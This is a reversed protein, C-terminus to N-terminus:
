VWSFSCNEISIRNQCPTTYARLQALIPKAKQHRKRSTVFLQIVEDCSVAIVTTNTTPVQESIRNIFLLGNLSNSFASSSCAALTPTWVLAPLM